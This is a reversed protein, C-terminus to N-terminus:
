GSMREASRTVEEGLQQLKPVLSEDQIVGGKISEWAKPIPVSLPCSWGRLAKVISDMAMVGQTAQDGGACCIMGIVRESLYAREDERMLECWDLANKLCGSVSGHYLPTAWIMGDASRLVDIFDAVASPVDKKDPHFIPLDLENLDLLETDAGVASAAALSVEVAARCDSKAALSGSLGVIKVKKSMWMGRPEYDSDTLDCYEDISAAAGDVFIAWYFLSGRSSM